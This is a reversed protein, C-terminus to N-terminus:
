SPPRWRLLAEVSMAQRQAPALAAWARAVPAFPACRYAAHWVARGHLHRQDLAADSAWAPTPQLQRLASSAYKRLLKGPGLESVASAPVLGASVCVDAIARSTSSRDPDAGDIAFPSPGYRASDAGSGADGRHAVTAQLGQRLLLDVFAEVSCEAAIPAREVRITESFELARVDKPNRAEFEVASVLEQLPHRPRRPVPNARTAASAPSHQGWRRFCAVFDIVSGDAGILRTHPGVLQLGRLTSPRAALDVGLLVQAKLALRRLPMDANAGWSAVHQPVSAIDAPPAPARPGLKVKRRAAALATGVDPLGRCGFGFALELTCHIASVYQDATKAPDKCRGGFAKAKEFTLLFAFEAVERAPSLYPHLNKARCHYMWREFKYTSTGRSDEATPQDAGPLLALGRAARAAAVVTAVDLPTQKWRVKKGAQHPVFAGDVFSAPRGCDERELPYTHAALIQADSASADFAVYRGGSDLTLPWELDTLVRRAHQPIRSHAGGWRLLGRARSAPLHAQWRQAAAEDLDGRAVARLPSM